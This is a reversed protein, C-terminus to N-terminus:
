RLRQEGIIAVLDTIHPGRPSSPPPPPPPPTEGLQGLAFVARGRGDAGWEALTASRADGGSTWVREGLMAAASVPGLHARRSDSGLGGSSEREPTADGVGASETIM